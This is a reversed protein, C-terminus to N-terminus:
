INIQVSAQHSSQPAFGTARNVKLVVLCPKIPLWGERDRKRQRQALVAINARRDGIHEVIQERVAVGYALADGLANTGLAGVGITQEGHKAMVADARKLEQWVAAQIADLADLRPPM